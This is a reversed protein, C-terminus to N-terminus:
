NSRRQALEHVVGALALRRNHWRYFDDGAMQAIREVVNRPEKNSQMAALFEAEYDARRTLDIAEGATIRAQLWLVFAWGPVDELEEMIQRCTDALPRHFSADGYQQAGAAWRKRLREAFLSFAQVMPSVANDSPRSTM